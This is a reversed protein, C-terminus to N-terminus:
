DQGVNFQFGYGRRYCSAGRTWLAAKAYAAAMTPYGSGNARTLCLTGDPWLHTGHADVTGEMRPSILAVRYVQFSPHYYIFLGYPDGFENTINFHWGEYTGDSVRVTNRPMNSRVFATEQDLRTAYFTDNTVEAIRENGTVENGMVLNGESDVFVQGNPSTPRGGNRQANKVADAIANLDVYFSDTTVESIAERGGTTDDRLHILGGQGVEVRAVQRPLDTENEITSAIVEGPVVQTRPALDTIVTADTVTALPIPAEGYDAFTTTPAHDWARNQSTM